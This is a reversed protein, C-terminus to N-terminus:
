RKAEPRKALGLGELDLTPQNSRCAGPAAARTLLCSTRVARCLERRGRLQPPLM